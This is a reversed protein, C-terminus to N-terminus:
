VSVSFERTSLVATSISVSDATSCCTSFNSLEKLESFNCSNYASNSLIVISSALTFFRVCILSFATLLRIGKLSAKPIVVVAITEGYPVNLSLLWGSFLDAMQGAATASSFFGALTIGVQITSLFNTENDLLKQVLLARKKGDKAYIEIKTKNASIVAMESMAFFANILTLVVILVIQLVLSDADADADDNSEM